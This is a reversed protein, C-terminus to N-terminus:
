ASARSPGIHPSGIATTAAMRRQQAEADADGKITAIITSTMPAPGFRRNVASLAETRQHETPLQHAARRAEERAERWEATGYVWADMNEPARGARVWVSGYREEQAQEDHILAPWGPRGHRDVAARLMRDTIIATEGRTTIHGGTGIFEDPLTLPIVRGSELFHIEEGPVPMRVTTDATDNVDSAAAAERAARLRAVGAPEPADLEASLEALRATKDTTSM